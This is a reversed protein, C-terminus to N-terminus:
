VSIRLSWIKGLDAVSDVIHTPKEIELSDRDHTGYTVAVVWGCGAAKGEAIDSPTDGVKAVRKPDIL